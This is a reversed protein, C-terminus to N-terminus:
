RRRRAMTLLGIAGLAVGGPTPITLTASFILGSVLVGADRQYFYLYNLGSNVAITQNHFSPAAYGAGQYGTSVGNIYLGDPNGGSGPWDGFWDDVAFELQLFASTANATTVFFPVAYLSSGPAGFPTGDASLSYNIWRAAADSLGPTWVSYPSIVVAAPGSVAGSFDAATFPSASIATGAPNNPLYTVIDDLQGVSGPNGGVQGSRVTIIEAAPAAHSAALAAVAALAALTLTRDLSM